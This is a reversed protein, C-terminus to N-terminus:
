NKRAKMSKRRNQKRKRSQVSKYSLPKSELEEIVTLFDKFEVKAPFGAPLPRKWVTVVEKREDAVKITESSAYSGHGQYGYNGQTGPIVREEYKAPIIITKESVLWMNGDNPEENTETIYKFYDTYKVKVPVSDCNMYEYYQPPM